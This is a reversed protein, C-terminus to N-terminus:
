TTERVDSESGSSKFGNQVLMRTYRRKSLTLSARITLGFGYMQDMAAHSQQCQALLGITLRTEIGSRSIDPVLIQGPMPQIVQDDMGGTM